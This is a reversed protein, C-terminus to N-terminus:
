LFESAQQEFTLFHGYYVHVLSRFILENFACFAHKVQKCDNCRCCIGKWISSIWVWSRQLSLEIPFPRHTPSTFLPIPWTGNSVRENVYLALYLCKLVTYTTSSNIIFKKIFSHNRTTSRNIHDQPFFILISWWKRWFQLHNHTFIFTCAM